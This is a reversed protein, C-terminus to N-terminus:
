NSWTGGSFFKPSGTQTSFNYGNVIFSIDTNSLVRSWYCSEDLSGSISTAIGGTLNLLTLNVSEASLGDTNGVTEKASGNVSIWIVQAGSDYGACIFNWKNLAYSTTSPVTILSSGSKRTFFSAELAGTGYIGWGATDAVSYRDYVYQGNFGSTPYVWTAVSFSATTNFSASASDLYAAAGSQVSFSGQIFQSFNQVTTGNRTLTLGNGTADPANANDAQEMEWVAVLGNLLGNGGGGGTGNTVTLTAVSSTISGCGNTIVVTFATNSQAIVVNSAWLTAATAGFYQIGNTVNVGNTRWQYALTATGSATVTFNTTTNTICTVNAPQVSITPATCSVQGGVVNTLIGGYFQLTNTVPGPALLAVNTTLGNVFSWNSFVVNGFNANPFYLNSLTTVNGNADVFFYNTGGSGGTSVITAVGGVATITIGPGAAIDNTDLINHIFPPPFAARACLSLALLAMTLYPKVIKPPPTLTKDPTYRAAIFDQLTKNGANASKLAANATALEDQLEVLRERLGTIEDAQKAITARYEADSTTVREPIFPKALWAAVALFFKKM